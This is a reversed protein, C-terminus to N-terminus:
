DAFKCRGSSLDMVESRFQDLSSENLEVEMIVGDPEFREQDITAEYQRVLRHILGTCDFPLSLSLRAQTHVQIAGAAQLCAAATGRYARVLGGAGLKTGGFYRVVLVAVHDLGAGDIANLIPQGATGGPEGDDEFRYTQGVRFAWCNHNANADAAAAIFSQAEAGSQVTQCFGLFRSKKIVQETQAPQSVTLFTTM